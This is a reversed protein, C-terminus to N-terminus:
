KSNLRETEQTDSWLGGGEKPPPQLYAAFFVYDSIIRILETSVNFQSRLESVM